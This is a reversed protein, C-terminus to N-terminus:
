TGPTKFLSLYQNYLNFGFKRYLGTLATWDIVCGDVGLSQMQLAAADILYGGLGQGRLAKSVGLPGFQGWPRSLRQPYFREVPRESDELTIRCFGEVQNNVYLLLYDRARGGNKVFEQAEMQWRGPYERGLFELLLTEQGAQMPILDAHAPKAYFPQYEKLSRALDYECPQSAPPQYGRKEFFPLNGGMADPLGPAFPRFNGGIRIRPCRHQKLWDEAWNLLAAGAGQRQAAPCVALASVWGLPSLPAEPRACALVFGVAEGDLLALRGAVTEGTSPIVNYALLRENILYDSHAAANWILLMKHLTDADQLSLSILSM